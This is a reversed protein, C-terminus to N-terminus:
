PLGRTTGTHTGSDSVSRNRGIRRGRWRWSDQLGAAISEGALPEEMRYSTRRWQPAM